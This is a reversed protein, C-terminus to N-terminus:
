VQFSGEALGDELDEVVNLANALKLVYICIDAIEQALKNSRNRHPPTGDTSKDVGTDGEWQALEALEGVESVTALMLNRPADFQEWKRANTFLVISGVLETVKGNISM